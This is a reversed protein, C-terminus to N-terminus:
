KQQLKMRLIKEQKRSLPIKEETDLIIQFTRGSPVVEKIRKLNILYSRHCRLFNYQQLKGELSRMDERTIYTRNLTKILNGSSRAEIYLINSPKIFMNQKKTKVPIPAEALAQSPSKLKDALKRVTKKIREEDFPKLIYDVSYLEFAELAHDPHATAFVLSLDEYEEALTHALEIGNMDPMDIDLFVAQPQNISAKKLAEKGSTAIDTVVGPVETIISQLFLGTAPEDDVILIKM